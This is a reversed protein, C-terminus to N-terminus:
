MYEQRPQIHWNRVIVLFMDLAIVLTWCFLALQTFELLVGQAVCVAAGRMLM